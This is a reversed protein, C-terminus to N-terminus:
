VVLFHRVKRATDLIITKVNGSTDRYKVLNTLIRDADRLNQGDPLGM